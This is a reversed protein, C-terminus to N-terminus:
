SCLHIASTTAIWTRPQTAPPSIMIARGISRTRPSFWIPAGASAGISVLRRRGSSRCSARASMASTPSAVSLFVGRPGIQTRFGGGAALTPPVGVAALVDVLDVGRGGPAVGLHRVLAVALQQGDVIL